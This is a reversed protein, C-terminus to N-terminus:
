LISGSNRMRIYLVSSVEKMEREWVTKGSTGPDVKQEKTWKRTKLWRVTGRSQLVWPFPRSVLSAHQYTFNVHKPSSKQWPLKIKVTNQYILCKWWFLPYMTVQTHQLPICIQFFPYYFWKLAHRTGKDTSNNSYYFHWREEMVLFLLDM